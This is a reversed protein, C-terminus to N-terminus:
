LYNENKYKDNRKLWKKFDKTWTMHQGKTGSGM